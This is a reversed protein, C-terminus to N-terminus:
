VCFFQSHRKIKEDEVAEILSNLAHQGEYVTMSTKQLEVTVTRLVEFMKEYRSVRKSFSVDRNMGAMLEDDRLVSSLQDKIEGYHKLVAHKGLWRTSNQQVPKLHTLNRLKASEKLHHKVYRILEHIQQITKNVKPSNQMIMSIELNLRYPMCSVQPKSILTAIQNSITANDAVICVSIILNSTWYMLHKVSFPSMHKQILFHQKM